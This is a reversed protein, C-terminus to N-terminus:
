EEGYKVAEEMATEALEQLKEAPVETLKKYGIAKILDKAVNKGARKNLEALLKRVADITPAAAPKPDEKFPLEEAPEPEKEPEQVPEQATVPCMGSVHAAYERSEPEQPEKTSCPIVGEQSITVGEPTINMSARGTTMHKQFEELSDFVVTIKM